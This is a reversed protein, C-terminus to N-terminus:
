TDDGITLISNRKAPTIAATNEPTKVFSISKRISDVNQVGFTSGAHRAVLDKVFAQGKGIRTAVVGVITEAVKYKFEVPLVCERGLRSIWWEEIEKDDYWGASTECFLTFVEMRRRLNAITEKLDLPLEGVKTDFYGEVENADTTDYGKEDTLLFLFVQQASSTDIKRMAYQLPLNASESRNGFGQQQELSALHDALRADNAFEPAVQIPANDGMPGDGFGMFLFENDETGTLEALTDSMLGGRKIIEEPWDGMSGTMDQAVIIVNKASSKVAHVAALTGLQNGRAYSGGARVSMARNSTRASNRPDGGSTVLSASRKPPNNYARRGSTNSPATYNTYSNDRSGSYGYGGSM